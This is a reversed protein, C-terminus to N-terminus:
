KYIKNIADIVKGENQKTAHAYISLTIQSSSHGLRRSVQTIPVGNEILQTAHTHRLCHFNRYPVKARKLAMGWSWRIGAYTPPGNRFKSQFIFDNEAGRELSDVIKKIKDPLIIDRISSSTKPRPKYKDNTFDANVHFYKGDYDKWKLAIIEGVRMGTLASIVFFPYVLKGRAAKEIKKLEDITFTEIPRKDYKVVKINKAYNKDIIGLMVAKSLALNLFTYAQRVTTPSYKKALRNFERQLELTNNDQLRLNAINSLRAASGKYTLRTGEEIDTCYTKIYEILMDGITLNNPESFSGKRMRLVNSSVWINADEETKFRKSIRKGSPTIIAARYRNRAKDFYISSM